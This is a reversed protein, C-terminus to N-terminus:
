NRATSRTVLIQFPFEVFSPLETMYLAILTLTAGLSFEWCFCRYSRQVAGSRDFRIRLHLAVTFQFRCELWISSAPFKFESKSVLLSPGWHEAMHRKLGDLLDWEYRSMDSLSTGQLRERNLCEPALPLSPTPSM